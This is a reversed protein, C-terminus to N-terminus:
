CSDAGARAIGRGLGSARWAPARGAGGAAARVLSRRACARSPLPWASSVRWAGDGRAHAPASAGARRTEPTKPAAVPGAGRRMRSAVWWTMESRTVNADRHTRWAAPCAYLRAGTGDDRARKQGDGSRCAFFSPGALRGWRTGVLLLEMHRQKPLSLPGMRLLMRPSTAARARAPLGAARATPPRAVPSGVCTASRACAARCRSRSSRLGKPNNRSLALPRPTEM